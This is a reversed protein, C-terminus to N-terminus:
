NLNRKLKNRTLCSVCFAIVFSVLREELEPNNLQINISLKKYMKMTQSNVKRQLLLDQADYDGVAVFKNWLTKFSKLSICFNVLTITTNPLPIYQYYNTIIGVEGQTTNDFYQLYKITITLLVFPM